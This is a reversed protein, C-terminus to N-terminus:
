AFVQEDDQEDDSWGRLLQLRRCVRPPESDRLCGNGQSPTYPAYARFLDGVVDRAFTVLVCTAAVIEVRLIPVTGGDDYFAFGWDPYDTATLQVYPLDRV